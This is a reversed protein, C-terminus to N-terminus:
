DEPDGEEEEDEESPQLNGTAKIKSETVDNSAAPKNDKNDKTRSNEFIDDHDEDEEDKGAPKSGSKGQSKQKSDDDFDDEYDDEFEDGFDNDVFLGNDTDERKKNGFLDTVKSNNDTAPKNDPKNKNNNFEIPRDSDLDFGIDEM